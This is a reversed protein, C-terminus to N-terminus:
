KKLDNYYSDFLPKYTTFRQEAYSIFHRFFTASDGYFDNGFTAMALCDMYPFAIKLCSQVIAASDSRLHDPISLRGGNQRAAAMYDSRYQQMDGMLTRGGQYKMTAFNTVSGILSQMTEDKKGSTSLYKMLCYNLVTFAVHMSFNHGAKSVLSPYISMLSNPVTKYANYDVDVENIIKDITNM